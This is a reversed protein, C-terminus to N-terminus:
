RKGNAMGLTATVSESILRYVCKEIIDMRLLLEADGGILRVKVPRFQSGVWIPLIIARDSGM